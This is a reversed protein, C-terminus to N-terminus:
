ESDETTAPEYFSDFQQTTMVCRSRFENVFVVIGSREPTDSTREVVQVEQLYRRVYKM